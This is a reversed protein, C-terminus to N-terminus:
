QYLPIYFTQGNINTNLWSVISSTNNPITSGTNTSIYSATIAYSSTIPLNSVISGTGDTMGQGGDNIVLLNKYTEAKTKGTLDM